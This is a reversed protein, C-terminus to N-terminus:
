GDPLLWDTKRKLPWGRVNTHVSEGFRITNPCLRLNESEYTAANALLGGYVPRKQQTAVYAAAERLHECTAGETSFM